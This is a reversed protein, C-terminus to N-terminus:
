VYTYIIYMYIHRSAIVCGSFFLMDLNPPTQHLRRRLRPTRTVRGLPWGPLREELEARALGVNHALMRARAPELEVCQCAAFWQLFGIACCGGAPARPTLSPRTIPRPAYRPLPPTWGQRPLPLGAIQEHAALEASLDTSSTGGAGPRGGRHRRDRDTYLCPRPPPHCGVGVWAGGAGGEPGAQSPPLPPRPPHQRGDPRRRVDAGDAGRRIHQHQGAGGCRGGHPPVCPHAPLPLPVSSPDCGPCPPMLRSPAAQPVRGAADQGPDGPVAHPRM